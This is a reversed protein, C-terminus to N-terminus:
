QCQGVAGCRRGDTLVAAMVQAAIRKGWCVHELLRELRRVPLRELLRELPRMAEAGNAAALRESLRM